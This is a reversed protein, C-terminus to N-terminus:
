DWFNHFNVLIQALSACSLFRTLVWREHTIANSFELKARSLYFSICNLKGKQFSLSTENQVGLVWGLVM